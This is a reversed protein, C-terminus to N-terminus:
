KGAPVNVQAGPLQPRLVMGTTIGRNEGTITAHSLKPLVESIVVQGIRTEERGLVEGTDPDKLVAGQAFVDWVQGRNIFTGAGRNVTVQDGVVAVVKAPYLTDTIRQGIQLSLRNILEVYVSDDAAKQNAVGSGAPIRASGTNDIQVPVEMSELLVGTTTNFIKVVASLRWTRRAGAIGMEQSYSSQTQDVFDDITVLVLYQLGKIKGPAAAKPDSADIVAGAPLGQERILEALDARAVIEFKRTNQLADTLQGDITEAARKVYLAQDNNTLQQQLAPLVKVAGLGIRLKGQPADAPAEEAMAWAGGLLLCVVCILKSIAKM